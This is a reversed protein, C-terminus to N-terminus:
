CALLPLALVSFFLCAPHHSAVDNALDIIRFHLITPRDSFAAIVRRSHVGATYTGLPESARSDRIFVYPKGIPHVNEKRPRNGDM